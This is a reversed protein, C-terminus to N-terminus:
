ALRALIAEVARGVGDEARIAQALEETRQRLAPDAVAKELAAALKDGTLTRQPLPPPAAGLIALREAWFFQDIALPTIVAPTGARLGAATTGAGGHHVLATVRPFLWAHPVHDIRYIYPSSFEDPALDAPAALVARLGTALLAQRVIRLMREPRLTGPSGFGIYVPPSGAELFRVLGAPPAWGPPGELFWYGVAQHWAPWDPPPPAVQPSFGYIVADGPRYLKAYPSSLSLPPLGLRNLRWRNVEARWPLWMAQEVLLHSLWNYTRGLSFRWPLLASPYARTRSFPQLFCWLCPAQLAEAIHAGWTTALGVLIAGAGQCAQWASELMRAYLPRAARLYASTARASRLWNGDYTLASQGGPARMLESPNGELLAFTLGQREVLTRFGPHTAVRVTCGAARLGLGLALYPQVDGRTGSALIVIEKGM